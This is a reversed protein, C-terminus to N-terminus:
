STSKRFIFVNETATNGRMIRLDDDLYAVDLSNLPGLSKWHDARTSTPGYTVRDPVVRVVTTQQGTFLSVQKDLEWDGNVRVDFSATDPNVQIREIYEMDTLYKNAKLVQKLGAFKGSPFSGGLGSLGKNFKMASSSSFVLEWTGALDDLDINGGKQVIVNTDETELINVIKIVLEQEGESCELGCPLLEENSNLDELLALLEMKARSTASTQEEEMEEDDSDEEFLADIAEYLAIFGAENLKDSNGSAKPISDYINQLELPLLDGDALMEQLEGWRNLEDTGVLQKEDCLEAFIVGPPLDEGSVMPLAAKPPSTTDAADQMVESMDAELEEMDEDDFVFLDDVAVNFSLFGDVDLREVSGPSKPTKEWIDDFEDEGLLGEDILKEVEDWAKLEDRSILGDKDCITKYVAELEQEDKVVTEDVDDDDDEDEEESLTSSPAPPSPSTEGKINGDEGTTVSAAIEDDDEEEFLDDIDRYIQIFSDVDIREQAVDPFKPAADWIDNLEDALLDGDYLLDAILPVKTLQEKTMLGEDCHKSFLNQLAESDQANVFDNNASMFLGHHHHQQQQNHQQQTGWVHACKINNTNQPIFSLTGRNPQIVCSSKAGGQSPTTFVFADISVLLCVSSLLWRM